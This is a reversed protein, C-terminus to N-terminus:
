QPSYLTNLIGLSLFYFTGSKNKRYRQNRNVTKVNEGNFLSIIL